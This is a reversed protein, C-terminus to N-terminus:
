EVIIGSFREKVIVSVKEQIKEKSITILNPKGNLSIEDKIMQPVYKWFLIWYSKGYQIVVHNYGREENTKSYCEIKANTM